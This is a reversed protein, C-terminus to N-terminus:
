QGQTCPGKKFRWVDTDNWTKGMAYVIGMGKRCTPYLATSEQLFASKSLRRGSLLENKISVNVVPITM